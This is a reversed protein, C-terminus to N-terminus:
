FAVRSLLGRLYRVAAQQALPDFVWDGHGDDPLWTDGWVGPEGDDTWDIGVVEECAEPCRVIVPVVIYTVRMEVPGRM